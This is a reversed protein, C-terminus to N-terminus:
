ISYIIQYVRYCKSPKTTYVLCSSRWERKKKTSCQSTMVHSAPLGSRIPDEQHHFWDFHHNFALIEGLFSWPPSSSPISPIYVASAYLWFWTKKKEPSKSSKNNRDRGLIIMGLCRAKQTSPKFNVGGLVQPHNSHYRKICALVMWGKRLMSRSDLM